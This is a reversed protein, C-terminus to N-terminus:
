SGFRYRVKFVFIDELPDRWANDFIQDFKNEGLLTRLDAQRTYVLFIDSLPAIEWRYRVQLSYQSISFDYNSPDAPGNPKAIPILKGPQNPIRYFDQEKAKIGVWSVGLKLQQQATFYYEVSLNPIWQRAKSTGMQNGGQHLLWGDREGYTVGLDLSFQYSPQWKLNASLSYGDGDEVDETKYNATVGYQWTEISDSNWQLTVDIKDDIRFTGNGFSNLDDYSGASYGVRTTLQSLNNLNLRNSLFVSGGTLLSQTVSKQAFGRIDFQNDRAWSMSSTSWSLASRIRYEDNRQLFGLDNIDINEDFYELGIRQVLGQRYTMELDLFGGYGRKDIGDIDSTMYQGDIRLDGASTRYHWDVGQVLADRDQNLVATSLVGIARYDGRQSTEYLLRAVGYDNGDQHLNQPGPDGEVDFKVEDEFAGMLGYRFSGVQGTTKLAGILETRQVRERQPVVVDAAVQPSRPKGGIRRTNVMTYPLGGIGVGQSQTDSRPTANFVEQGELFFLRKEPFFTETATLNLVVGDSEVNGFDPNITANLQFNSSPRWFLDAGPRADAVDDVGDYSTSLFPYISWQQRPSINELEIPQMLSMFRSNTRPLPPWGWEEEKYAVKRMTAVKMTRIDGSTPMSLIGWPIFIEASWGTSTLSSRAQIAGDWDSSFRREPLMTGDMISGSSTVGFFYGYKSDGSTDLMVGFNEQNVTFFMDRGTLRRIISEPPQEMVSSVYLGRDDYMMRLHTKHNAKELTDPQVVRYDDIVPVKHWVPEDVVGDIKVTHEDRNFKTLRIPQGAEFEAFVERSDREGNPATPPTIQKAPDLRDINQAAPRIAQKTVPTIVEKRAPTVPRTYDTAVVEEPEVVLWAGNVGIGTLSSLNQRAAQENAFPGMMVRHFRGKDTNAKRIILPKLLQDGKERVYQQAYEVSKFSALSLWYSDAYIANPHLVVLCLLVVFLRV